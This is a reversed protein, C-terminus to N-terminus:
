SWSLDGANSLTLSNSYDSHLNFSRSIVKLGLSTRAATTTRPDTKRIAQSTPLIVPIKPQKRVAGSSNEVPETLFEHTQVPTGNM